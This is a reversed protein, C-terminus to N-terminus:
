IKKGHKKGFRVKPRDPDCCWYGGQEGGVIRHGYLMVMGDKDKKWSYPTENFILHDLWTNLIPDSTSMATEFFEHVADKPPPTQPRDERKPTNNLIKKINM